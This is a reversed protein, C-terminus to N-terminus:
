LFKMVLATGLLGVIVVGFVQNATPMTMGPAKNAVVAPTPVTATPVKEINTDQCVAHPVDPLLMCGNLGGYDFLRPLKMRSEGANIIGQSGSVWERRVWERHVDPFDPSGYADAFTGQTQGPFGYSGARSSTVNNSLWNADTPSPRFNAELDTIADGM